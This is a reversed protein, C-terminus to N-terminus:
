WWVSVKSRRAKKSNLKSNDRGALFSLPNRMREKRERACRLKSPKQSKKKRRNRKVATPLNEVGFARKVAQVSAPFGM